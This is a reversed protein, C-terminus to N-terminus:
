EGVDNSGIHRGTQRTLQNEVSLIHSTRSRVLQLRRRALDRVAREFPPCIYGTPLIDLRFLHALHRADTEDGSYKLGDCVKVAGTNALKVVYGASM